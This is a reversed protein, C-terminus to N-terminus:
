VDHPERVAGAENQRRALQGWMNLFGRCLRMRSRDPIRVTEGAMASARPEVKTPYAFGHEGVPDLPVGKHCFFEGGHLKVADLIERWRDPNGQEPSGPRFACNGCPESFAALLDDPDWLLTRDIPEWIAKCNVCAELDQAYFRLPFEQAVLLAEVRRCGCKPCQGAGKITEPLAKM